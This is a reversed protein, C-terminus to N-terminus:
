ARLGVQEFVGPRPLADAHVTFLERPARYVEDYYADLRRAMASDFNPRADLTRGWRYHSVEGDRVVLDGDKFLLHAARFM